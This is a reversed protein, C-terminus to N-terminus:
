IQIENIKQHQLRTTSSIYIIQLELNRLKNYMHPFSHEQNWIYITPSVYLTFSYATFVRLDLVFCNETRNKQM